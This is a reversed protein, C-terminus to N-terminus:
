IHPDDQSRAHEFASIKEVHRLLFDTEDIGNLLCFRVFPDLPFKRVSGEPLGLTRKAIDIQAKAGPHKLLWDHTQSDVIVTVLSNKQANITFIDAISTSIVAQFGLELLAWTAHERSSGCGFNAGAM